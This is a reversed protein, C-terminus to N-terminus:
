SAGGEALSEAIIDDADLVAQRRTWHLRQMPKFQYLVGREYVKLGRDFYVWQSHKSRLHDRITKLNQSATEDVKYIVPAIATKSPSLSVSLLASDQDALVEIRHRLGREPSLFGDLCTQLAHLYIQQEQLSPHRMAEHTVKGKNLELHVQVLDEVLWSDAPRLGLLNFVRNDLEAMFGQMAKLSSDIQEEELYNMMSHATLQSHFSVWEDIEAPSLAFIPIPLQKLTDLAAVSEDVGWKPANFFQHYRVFTSSLYLSLVKLHKTSEPKGAIGILWGPVAIFENSFIAFRRSADVIIHPPASVAIPNKSRGKRVYCEDSEIVAMAWKPFTFILGVNKLKDVLLKSKGELEPHHEVAEKSASSSSRLELGQHPSGIDYKTLADIKMEKFRADLRELLRRDRSTGWMALKWTLSDGLKASENKIERIDNSGVVINWTFQRKNPKEPRNAVQEAVFPAFAMIRHDDDPKEGDFFVVSAPRESRGAFLVYALNAFNALCWVRREAFFQQRFGFAEKKFWTMALVVMGCVGDPALHEGAKWLFAEAIQNGSTPHSSKHSNMWQHAVFHEHEAPPTKKVEAWPPNGVIWSFKQGTLVDFVPGSTDFFDVKHEQGKPDDWPGFINRDRLSPLKFDTNELDPPQVYDLLTMILSLEAIRCADEDRDVGFIHQTLLDRLETKKLDRGLVRRQKEILRRYSQVLFTGSGCAPDLVKMGPKLPRRNELESLVYDALHLPTYYAGLTKGRSGGGEEKADHLFQEYVCSLTEIPIHAFDYADFLSPQITSKGAPSDGHFVRAVLQLQPATIDALEAEGLSFVSGNLWKQLEANVRRFAKLTAKSTFIHLPDIGWKALKEDSLIERDRLYRLYVFKGILGHSAKRDVGEENQLLDDLKELDRLLTEDVRNLPRVAHGWRQWLTGDDISEARFEALGELIEATAKGVTNLPHDGEREFTFGPYVRITAPSEVILFPSQNQNWVFQHVRRAVTESNVQFVFVVPVAPAQRKQQLVYAGDFRVDDSHSGLHQCEKSALRLAFALENAPLDDVQEPGYFHKSDAYGLVESVHM